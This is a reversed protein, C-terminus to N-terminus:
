QSANWDETDTDKDQCHGCVLYKKIDKKARKLDPCDKVKHIKNGGIVGHMIKRQKRQRRCRRCCACIWDRIKEVILLKVLEKVIEYIIIGVAFLILTPWDLGSEVIEQGRMAAEEIATKGVDLAEFIVMAVSSNSAQQQQSIKMADAGDVLAALVGAKAFKM